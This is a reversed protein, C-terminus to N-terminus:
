AWGLKEECRRLFVGSPGDEELMQAVKRFELVAMDYRGEYYMKVGHEYLRAAQELAERDDMFLQYVPVPDGGSDLYDLLRCTFGGRRLSDADGTVVPVRFLGAQALMLESDEVPKGVALYGDGVVGLVASGRAIGARLTWLSGSRNRDSRNREEVWALLRGATRAAELTVDGQEGAEFVLNTRHGKSFNLLGGCEAATSKLYTQFEHLEGTVVQPYLRATPELYDVLEVTLSTIEQRRGATDGAARAELRHLAEPPLHKKHLVLLRRQQEARKELSAIRARRKKDIDQLRRALANYEGIFGGSERDFAGEVAAPTEEEGQLVPLYGARLAERFRGWRRLLRLIVLFVLAAFLGLVASAAYLLVNRARFARAYDSYVFLVAGAPPYRVAYGFRQPLSLEVEQSERTEELVRRAAADDWGGAAARRPYLVKGSEEEILLMGVRADLDFYGAVSGAVERLVEPDPSGDPAAQELAQVREDLLSLTFLGTERHLSQFAGRMDATYFLYTFFLLLALCVLFVSLLNLLARVHAKM